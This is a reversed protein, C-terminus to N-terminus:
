MERIAEIPSVAMARRAPLYCAAFAVAALVFPVTVFTFVDRPGIGTLFAALMGSLLLAAALGIAAGIFVLKMGERIVLSFVAHSNAGLAMRIGLERTRRATAFSMVGYVGVSALLLALAAFIGVLWAGMRPVYLSTGITQEVTEINPVPLNPELAQIERRIDALLAAPPMTTRVYLTVGTEHKQLIPIYVVPQPDENVSAYKSDRAVGIIETWEPKQGGPVIPSFRKGIADEDPFFRRVFAESVIAVLPRDASDAANFDRGRLLPIGLTKLFGPSVVNVSALEREDATMGRGESLRPNSAAARGEVNVSTVRGGGTIVAVRAVSASVVGPVAEMRQIVQNYFDRGQASTFRLLNINLPASVLRDATIGPDIQQLTRLSRVLLGAAILLVMSLAVEAVVLLKKINIRRGREDVAATDGKLAPMVGPHSAALAPVLGFVIGTVASLLLSFALVRYDIAFDLAIPLAGAPPPAAKFAKVITWALAFGAAGGLLALIISETLLQRVIRWRSAGMALRVALERRRAAAKSLLLNAVNACAILLIAAVVASLLTAASKLPRRQLPEGDNVPLLTLRQDPANPNRSRAYATLASSIEAEGQARSIGPKLRGAAFLWGNAANKLLDPNMEGAYGARPPRMLPQMMMPVYLDRMVGLQPGPFDAPAIGIITFPQANLRIEHGVIDPRGAFRSQWLRYSIVAVPHGGPTVDDARSLVRGNTTNVGLTEFFNGAVIAGSVLDTEGDANLSATIGGWATLNEFSTSANRLSEYAPYSPVFWIDRNFVYFLRDAQRVPLRRLLTANVLSFIATNAGIGLALTLIAALAFGRHKRLLRVAYMLDKGVDRLLSRSPVGAAIPEPRHAQRLKRMERVLLEEDDIEDLASQVATAHDNGAARLERYRDDLHQALEDAVELERAPRLGINKLRESILQKWDCM